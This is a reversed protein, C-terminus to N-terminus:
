RRTIPSGDHFRAEPRLTFVVWSRDPPLEITEAVLGYETFPEDDSPVTLTDFVGASARGRARGQRRLPQAHRLHRDGLAARAARPRRRTSTTSIRSARPRVQPRRVDLVRARDVTKAGAAQPAAPPRGLLTVAALALLVGLFRAVDGRSGADPAHTRREAAAVEPRGAARRAGPGRRRARACEGARRVAGALLAEGPQVLHDHLPDRGRHHDQGARPREWPASCRRAGAAASRRASTPARAPRCCCSGSSPSACSSTFTILVYYM